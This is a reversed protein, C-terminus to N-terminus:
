TSLFSRDAGDLVLCTLRGTAYAGTDIGIRNSKIAPKKTINHGHVILYGHDVVSDLFDGRIWILDEEAQDKIARDPRIGAHVFLYDGEIHFPSLNQFFKLHTNPLEAFFKEQIATFDGQGRSWLGKAADYSELTADGGIVVWNPGFKEDDLFRLLLDEHNGKLYVSEFDKLPSGIIFDLLERSSPGRDIYDGLYIVVKRRAQFPGSDAEILNHLNELLDVRGHIDGVAYIRTNEPAKYTRKERLKFISGM